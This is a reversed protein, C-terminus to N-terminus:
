NSPPLFRTKGELYDVYELNGLRMRLSVGSAKSLEHEIKCFIAANYDIMPTESPRNFMISTNNVGNLNKDFTFTPFFQFTFSSLSFAPKEPFLYINETQANIIGFHIFAFFLIAFVRKL